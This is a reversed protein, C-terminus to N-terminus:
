SKYGIANRTLEAALEEIAFQIKWFNDNDEVTQISRDPAVGEHVLKSRFGYATDFINEPSKGYKDIYAQKQEPQLQSGIYERCAMRISLFKLERVRGALSKYQPSDCTRSKVLKNLEAVISQMEDDAKIRGVLAEIASVSAILRLLTSTTRGHTQLMLSNVVKDSLLGIEATASFKTAWKEGFHEDVPIECSIGGGRKLNPKDEFLELGVHAISNKFREALEDSNNQDKPPYFLDSLGLKVVDDTQCALALFCHQLLLGRRYAETISGRFDIEAFLQSGTRGLESQGLKNDNMGSLRPDAAYLKVTGISVVEFNISMELYKYNEGLELRLGAGWNDCNAENGM